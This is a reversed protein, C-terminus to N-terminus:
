SRFAFLYGIEGHVVNPHRIVAYGQENFFRILARHNRTEDLDHYEMIVREIKGFVDAPAKFFIEYEAGECDLKLLDIKEIREERLLHPLTVADVCTKGAASNRDVRESSSIQLPEGSSLDLQVEGAAGWVAQQRTHVNEIGNLALNCKLLEYSEHFPEYAYIAGARNGHAAYLSYDGIGAGIDVVTWGEQVPVGYRTYFQDVFTEKVSWVDMASRVMIELAPRRLKLKKISTKSRCLFFPTLSPWNKFWVLIELLSKAYYLWASLSRM